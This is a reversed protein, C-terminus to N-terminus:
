ERSDIHSVPYVASFNTIAAFAMSSFISRANEYGPDRLCTVGTVPVLLFEAFESSNVVQYTNLTCALVISDVSDKEGKFCNNM